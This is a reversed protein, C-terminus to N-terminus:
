AQIEYENIDGSLYAAINENVSALKSQCEKVTRQYDNAYKEILRAVAIKKLESFDRLEDGWRAIIFKEECNFSPHKGGNAIVEEKSNFKQGEMDKNSDSYFSQEEWYGHHGVAVPDPSKDDYWIEIKEFHNEKVSFAIQKLVILPITTKKYENYEVSAPCLSKYVRDMTTNIFPYPIPSDKGKTLSLQSELGLEGCISKWEDLAEIDFAVDSLEKNFFIEEM